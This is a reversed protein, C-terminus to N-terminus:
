NLKYNPLNQSHSRPLALVTVGFLATLFFTVYFYCERYEEVKHVLLSSLAIALGFIFFSCGMTTARLFTPFLDLFILWNLCVATTGFLICFTNYYIERGFEHTILAVVAALSLLIYIFFLGHTKGLFIYVPIIFLYGIAEAGISLLGFEDTDVYHIVARLKAFNYNLSAIVMSLCIILFHKLKNTFLFLMMQYTITTKKLKVNEEQQEPLTYLKGSIENLVQFAEKIKNKNILWRASEPTYWCAFIMICNTSAIFGILYQWVHIAKSTYDLVLVGLLYYPITYIVLLRSMKTTIEGFTVFTVVNVINCFAVAVVFALELVHKNHIIIWIWGLINWVICSYFSVMRRGYLDAFLGGILAGLCLGISKFVSM